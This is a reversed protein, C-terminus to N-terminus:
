RTANVIRIVKNGHYVKARIPADTTRLALVVNAIIDLFAGEFRAPYDIPFDRDIEWAISWGHLRAFEALTSSLRANGPTLTLSLLVPLREPAPIQGARANYAAVTKASPNAQDNPPLLDAVSLNEGVRAVESADTARAPMSAWQPNITDKILPAAASNVDPKGSSPRDINREIPWQLSASLPAATAASQTITALMLWALPMCVFFAHHRINNM